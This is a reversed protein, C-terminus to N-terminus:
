YHSDMVGAAMRLLTDRENDSPNEIVHALLERLTRGVAAGPRAGLLILDDGNVALYKLTFCEGSKLVSKLKKVYGGEPSVVDAAAAFCAVSDLGAAALLKKWATKDGPLARRLMSVGTSCSKITQNDLRLKRLFGETDTIYGHNVLWACFGAWRQAKNKPLRAIRDLGGGPEGKGQLYSDALGYELVRAMVEPSNSMLIKELEERVREASLGSALSSCKQIAGATEEEIEFGLKAAFRLARLQRLADEEFREEPSGVCRILRNSIDQMGGYPDFLMGSLPLAMANITFDRRALDDKLESIFTVTEPRRNNEYPGEKRFTTVEISSKGQLVTITGHKLGTPATRPFCRMIEEPTASTGIDWDSPYSDMIMDRVCGGVLCAIFGHEELNRLTNRVYKPPSVAAM